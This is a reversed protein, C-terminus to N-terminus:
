NSLPMYTAGTNDLREVARLDDPRSTPPHQPRRWRQRRLVEDPRSQAVTFPSPASRGRRVAPADWLLPSPRHLLDVQDWLNQRNNLALKFQKHPPDRVHKKGQLKATVEAKLKGLNNSRPSAPALPTINWGEASNEDAKCIAIRM